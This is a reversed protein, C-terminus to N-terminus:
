QTLRYVRFSNQANGQSVDIVPSSTFANGTTNLSFGLRPILISGSAVDRAEVRGQLMYTALQATLPLNLLAFNGVESSATFNFLYLRAIFREQGASSTTNQFRILLKCEFEYTGTAPAVFDGTAPNYRGAPDFLEGEFFLNTVGVNTVPSGLTINPPTADGIASVLLRPVVQANLEGQVFGTNAAQTTADGAPRNPVTVTGTFNKTGTIAQTVAALRLYYNDAEAQRLALTNPPSGGPAPLILNGSMTDGAKQVLGSLNVSPNTVNVLPAYDWDANGVQGSAPPTIKTSASATKSIWGQSPSGHSVVDGFQYVVAPSYPGVWRGVRLRNLYQTDTTLLQALYSLGAQPNSVFEAGFDVLDVLEITTVDPLIADFPDVIAEHTSRVVATIERSEGSIFVTGTWWKGSNQVRPADDPYISGDQMVWTTTQITREITFRYSVQENVTAPLFIQGLTTGPLAPSNLVGNTVSYISPQTTLLSDPTTSRDILIQRLQVTVRGLPIPASASDEILGVIIPM